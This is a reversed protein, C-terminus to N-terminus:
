NLTALSKERMATGIEVAAALFQLAEVAARIQEDNIVGARYARELADHNQEVTNTTLAQMADNM